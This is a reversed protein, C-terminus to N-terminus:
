GSRLADFATEGSPAPLLGDIWLHTGHGALYCGGALLAGRIPPGIGWGRLALLAGTAVLGALLLGATLRHTVTRHPPRLRAIGVRVTRRTALAALIALGGALFRGDAPGLLARWLGAVATRQWAVTGAIGVAAVPPLWRVLAAHPRSDAHDIDPLVAGLLTLPTAMVAVALLAASQGLAVHGVAVLNVLLAHIGVGAWLHRRFPAM